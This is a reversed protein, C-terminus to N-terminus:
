GDTTWGDPLRLADVTRPSATLERGVVAMARVVATHRVVGVWTQTDDPKRSADVVVWVEDPELRPLIATAVEGDPGTGVALVASTGARVAMARAEVADRRSDLRLLGDGGALGACGPLVGLRAAMDRVVEVADDGLGVLAVLDGPRTSPGDVEAVAQDAQTTM